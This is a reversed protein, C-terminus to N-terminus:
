SGRRTRVREARGAGALGLVARRTAGQMQPVEDMRM